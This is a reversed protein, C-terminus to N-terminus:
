LPGARIRACERESERSARSRVRSRSLLRRPYKWPLISEPFSRRDACPFPAAWESQAPPVSGKKRRLLERASYGCWCCRGGTKATEPHHVVGIPTESGRAARLDLFAAGGHTIAMVLM